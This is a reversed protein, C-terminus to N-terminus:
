RARSEKGVPSQEPLAVGGVIQPLSPTLRLLTPSPNLLLFDLKRSTKVDPKSIFRSASPSMMAPDLGLSSRSAILCSAFDGPSLATILSILSAPELVALSLIKPRSSSPLKTSTSANTLCLDPSWPMCRCSGSPSPTTAPCPMSSPLLTTHKECSKATNEPVM